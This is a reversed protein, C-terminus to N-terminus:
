GSKHRNLKACAEVFVAATLGPSGALFNKDNSCFYPQTTWKDPFSNSEAISNLLNEALAINLEYDLLVNAAMAGILQNGNTLDKKFRLSIKEAM